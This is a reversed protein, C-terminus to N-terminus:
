MFVITGHFNLCYHAPMFVGKWDSFPGIFQSLKETTKQVKLEILGLFLLSNTEPLM